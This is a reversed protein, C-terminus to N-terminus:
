FHDGHTPVISFAVRDLPNPPIGMPCSIRPVVEMPHQGEILITIGEGAELPGDLTIFTREMVKSASSPKEIVIFMGVGITPDKKTCFDPFHM